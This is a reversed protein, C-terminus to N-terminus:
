CFELLKKIDDHKQRYDRDVEMLAKHRTAAKNIAGRTTNIRDSIVEYTAFTYRKAFCYYLSRADSIRYEIKRQKNYNTMDSVSIGTVQEIAREIERLRKIITYQALPAHIHMSYNIEETKTLIPPYM